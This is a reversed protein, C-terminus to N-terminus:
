FEEKEVFFMEFDGKNKVPIRGRSSGRFANKVEEWTTGSVNVCGAEGASEMRAAINVTDGWIDYAFKKAGVVGAVVPGSHIGIRADFRPLGAADREANWTKLFEQMELAAAVMRRSATEPELFGSAAMYADGITKIKEIEHRQAIADFNKFCFDLERVLDAPSLLEAIRSFNKFDSFLVTVQEYFKAEAFGHKKLEEAVAAPLINLLLSEARAREAEILKNKEELIRANQRARVFGWGIGLALLVGAGFLALFLNSKAKQERVELDKQSLVLSQQALTMSDIQGRFAMSDLLIKQNALELERKAQAETLSVIAENKKLIETSLAAKAAALNQTSKSLDANSESLKSVETKLKEAQEREALVSKIRAIKADIQTLDGEERSKEALKRLETLNALIISYDTSGSKEFLENSRRFAAVAGKQAQKKRDSRTLAIGKQHFARATLETKGFTAAQDAAFEALAVASSVDSEALAKKSFELAKEAKEAESFTELATKWKQEQALLPSIFPLVAAWFAAAFVFRM